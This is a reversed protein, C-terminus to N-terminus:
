SMPEGPCELGGVEWTDGEWGAANVFIVERAKLNQARTGTKGDKSGYQCAVEKLFVEGFRWLGTDRGPRIVTLAFKDQASVTRRVNCSNQM